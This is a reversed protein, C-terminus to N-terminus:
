VPIVRADFRSRTTSHRVLYADLAVVTLDVDNILDVPDQPLAAEGQDVVTQRVDVAIM